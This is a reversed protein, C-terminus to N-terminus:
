NREAAQRAMKEKMIQTAFKTILIGVLLIAEPSSQGLLPLIRQTLDYFEENSCERRAIGHLRDIEESDIRPTEGANFEFQNM